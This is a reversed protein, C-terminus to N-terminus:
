GAQNLRFNMKHLRELERMGAIRKREMRAYADWDWARPECADHPSCMQVYRCDLCEADGWEEHLKQFGEDLWPPVWSSSRCFFAAEADDIEDRTLFEAWTTVTIRDHVPKLLKWRNPSIEHGDLWDPYVLTYSSIWGRQLGALAWTDCATHEDDIEAYNEYDYGLDHHADFNVVDLPGFEQCLDRCIVAAWAHSDAYWTPVMAGGISCSLNTIFDLPDPTLKTLEKLDLGWHTFNRVRGEWVIQDLAPMRGEAMQWDYVFVGPMSDKMKPLYISEKHMGHPVLFDFDVSIFTAM